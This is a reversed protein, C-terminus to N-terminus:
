ASRRKIGARRELEALLEDTAFEDIRGVKRRNHVQEERTAWRCNEPEYNGDNDIRDLSHEPSPKEGMDTLFAVFDRWRECVTIGRGGYGPHAPDRCRSWMNQWATYLPSRRGDSAHGHVVPNHRFKKLRQGSLERNWCGCSRTAPAQRTLHSATVLVEGGCDCRCLWRGRKWGNKRIRSPGPGTVVLRGFRCGTLIKGGTEAM